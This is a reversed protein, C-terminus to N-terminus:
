SHAEYLCYYRVQGACRTANRHILICSNLSLRNDRRRTKLSAENTIDKESRQIYVNCTDNQQTDFM